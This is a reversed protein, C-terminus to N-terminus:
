GGRDSFAGWVARLTILFKMNEVLFLTPLYKGLTVYTGLDSLIPDIKERLHPFQIDDINMGVYVSALGLAEISTFMNVPAHDIKKWSQVQKRIESLQDRTFPYQDPNEQFAIEADHAYIKPNMQIAYLGARILPSPLYMHYMVTPSASLAKYYLERLAKKDAKSRRVSKLNMFFKTNCEDLLPPSSCLTQILQPKVTENFFQTNFLKVVSDCNEQLWKVVDEVPKKDVRLAGWVKRDVLLGPIHDVTAPPYWINDHGPEHTGKIYHKKELANLHVRVGKSVGVNFEKKLYDRIDSTTVGTVNDYVREIIKLKIYGKPNGKGRGRKQTSDM